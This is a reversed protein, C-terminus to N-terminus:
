EFTCGKTIRVDYNHATSRSARSRRWLDGSTSLLGPSEALRYPSDAPLGAMLKAHVEPMAHYPLSPFLHSLSLLKM